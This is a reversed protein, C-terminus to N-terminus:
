ADAPFIGVTKDPSSTRYNLTHRISFCVFPLAFRHIAVAASSIRRIWLLHFNVEMRWNELNRWILGRVRELNLWRSPVKVNSLMAFMYVLSTSKRFRFNTPLSIISSSCRRFSERNRMMFLAAVTGWLMVSSTTSSSSCWNYADMLPKSGITCRGFLRHCLLRHM